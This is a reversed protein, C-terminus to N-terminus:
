NFIRNQHTATPDCTYEEKVFVIHDEERRSLTVLPVRVLDLLQQAAYRIISSRKHLQWCRKKKKLKQKAEKRM